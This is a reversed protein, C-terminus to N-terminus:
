SVLEFEIVDTYYISHAWTIECADGEEVKFTFNCGHPLKVLGKYKDHNPQKEGKNFSFSPLDGDTPFEITLDKIADESEGVEIGSELNKLVRM